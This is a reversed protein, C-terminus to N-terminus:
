EVALLSRMVAGSNVVVAASAQWVALHDCAYMASVLGRMM